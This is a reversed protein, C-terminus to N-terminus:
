MALGNCVTKDAVSSCSIEDVTCLFDTTKEWEREHVGAVRVAAGVVIHIDAYINYKIM